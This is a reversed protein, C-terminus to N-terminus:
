RGGHSNVKPVARKRECRPAFLIVLRKVQQPAATGIARGAQPIAWPGTVLGIGTHASRFGPTNSNKLLANAADAHDGTHRETQPDFTLWPGVTYEADIRRCASARAMIEHLRM